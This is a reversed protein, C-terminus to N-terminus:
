FLYTLFFKGVSLVFFIYFLVASEKRLNKKGFAYPLVFVLPILLLAASGTHKYLIFDSVAVGAFAISFWMVMTNLKRLRISGQSLNKLFSGISLVTLLIFAASVIIVNIIGIHIESSSHWLSFSFDQKVYHYAGVYILPIIIGLFIIVSERLKFSRFVWFIFYVFPLMFYLLPFFSAALSWLISANFVIRRADENQHLQFFSWFSLCLLFAAIGFGSLYYFHPFFSSATIYLIVPLYTNRDFFENRNFLANLLSASVFILIGALVQSIPPFFRPVQGWLGLDLEGEPWTYIGLYHNVLAYVGIVLPALLLAYSQNGYFLRLM